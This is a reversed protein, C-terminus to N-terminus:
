TRKPIRRLTPKATEQLTLVQKRKPPETVIPSTFRVGVVERQRWVVQCGVWMGDLEIYLEFTDPVAISGTTVLKAGGDSLDRVTCPLTSHRGNFCVLGAKLVRRRPPRPIQVKGDVAQLSAACPSKPEIEAM